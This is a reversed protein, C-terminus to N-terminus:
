GIAMRPKQNYIPIPSVLFSFLLILFSTLIKYWVHHEKERYFQGVAVLQDLLLKYHNYNLVKLEDDQLILLVLFESDIYVVRTLRNVHFPGEIIHAKLLAM